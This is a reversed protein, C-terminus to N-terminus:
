LAGSNIALARERAPVGDGLCAEIFHSYIKSFKFMRNRQEEYISINKKIPPIIIIKGVKKTKPGSTASQAGGLGEGRLEYISISNSNVLPM